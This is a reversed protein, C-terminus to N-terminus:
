KQWTINYKIMKERLGKRSLGLYKATETRNGRCIKLANRIRQIEFDAKLAKVAYRLNQENISENYGSDISGRDCEDSEFLFNREILPKDTLLVAREIRNKLERINGTFIYSKIAKEAERSLYLGKKDYKISFEKIFEKAILLSDEERESLPPLKIEIVKLRHYLDERFIGEVVLRKLDRNTASIVRVNVKILREGGLRMFCGNELVRLIKSQVDLEMDGIEDFFLTGKDALEFRGIRANEAGTFAGKEHGFLESLLLSGSLVSCNVAIFPNSSRNSKNHIAKALLEKGTGTEGSILVPVEACSIKNVTDIINQMAKSRYLIEPHTQFIELAAKLRKNEGEIKRLKLANGISTRIREIEFPKTIFDFAGMKIASVAKPITGYSTIVIIPPSNYISKMKSILKMGDWGPLVLDTIILDADNQNEYELFADEANDFLVAQMRMKKITIDLASRISEEDDIIYVKKM